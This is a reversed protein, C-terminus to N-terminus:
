IVKGYHTTDKPYKMLQAFRANGMGHVSHSESEKPFCSMIDCKVEDSPQRIWKLAQLKYTKLIKISNNNNQNM